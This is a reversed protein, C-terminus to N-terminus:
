ECINKM